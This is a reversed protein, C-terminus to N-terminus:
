RNLAIQDAFYDELKKTLQRASFGDVDSEAGTMVKEISIAPQVEVFLNAKTRPIKYWKEGKTLTSPRCQIIVPTLMAKSRLLIHATGRKFKLAEGPRSRTGEPFIILNNGAQLAQECQDILSDSDSNRIYDASRVVMGVFPNNWLEQKVICNVNPMYAIIAIVDILTPHNALILQGRSQTLRQASRIEFKLVGTFQMVWLFMAFATQITKRALQTRYKGAFVFYLPFIVVTMVLAGFGFLFFCLATAFLRWAYDIRQM